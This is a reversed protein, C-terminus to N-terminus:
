SVQKSMSIHDSNIKLGGGKGFNDSAYSRRQCYFIECRALFVTNAQVGVDDIMVSPKLIPQHYILVYTKYYKCKVKGSFKIMFNSTM